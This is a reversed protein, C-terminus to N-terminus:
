KHYFNRLHNMLDDYNNFKMTICEAIHPSRLWNSNGFVYIPKNYEKAVFIEWLTGPSKDLEEANLIVIDSKLLYHRNQAVISANSCDTKINTEFNVTPDFIDMVEWRNQLLYTLTRRWQRAKDFEQNNHHYSMAGALYALM